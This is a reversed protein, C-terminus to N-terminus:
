PSSLHGRRGSVPAYLRSPVWACNAAPVRAAAGTGIRNKRESIPDNPMTDLAGTVPGLFSNAISTLTDVAGATVALRALGRHQHTAGISM